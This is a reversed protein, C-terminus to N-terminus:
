EWARIRVKGDGILGGIRWCDRRMVRPQSELIRTEVIRQSRQAGCGM